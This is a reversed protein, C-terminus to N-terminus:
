FGRELMTKLRHCNACLTRLNSEENNKKNGDVHDIDLQGHHIAVFGCNECKDKKFRVYPTKHCPGCVNRWGEKGKKM